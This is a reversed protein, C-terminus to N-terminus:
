SRVAYPHKSGAFPTSGMSHPTCAHLQCAQMEIWPCDMSATRSARYAPISHIYVVYYAAPLSVPLQAVKRRPKTLFIHIYRRVTIRTTNGHTMNFSASVRVNLTCGNVCNLIVCNSLSHKSYDIALLNALHSRTTYYSLFSFIRSTLSPLLEMSM